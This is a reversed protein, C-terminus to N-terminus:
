QFEILTATLHEVRVLERDPPLEAFDVPFDVAHPIKM